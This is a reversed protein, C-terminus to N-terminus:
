AAMKHSAEGRVGKAHSAEPNTTSRIVRPIFLYIYCRQFKGVDARSSRTVEPLVRTVQKELSSRFLVLKHLHSVFVLDSESLM